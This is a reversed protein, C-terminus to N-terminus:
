KTWKWPLYINGIFFNCRKIERPRNEAKWNSISSRCNSVWSVQYEKDWLCSFCSQNKFIKYQHISNTFNNCIRWQLYLYCYATLLCPFWDWKYQLFVVKVWTKLTIEWWCTESPNFQPWHMSNCLIPSRILRQPNGRIRLQPMHM